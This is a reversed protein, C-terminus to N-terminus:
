KKRLIELVADLEANLRIIEDRNVNEGSDELAEIQALLRQIYDNTVNDFSNSDKPLVPTDDKSDSSNNVNSGSTKDQHKSNKGSSPKPAPKKVVIEEDEEFSDDGAIYQGNLHNDGTAFSLYFVEEFSEDTSLKHKPWQAEVASNNYSLVTDFSRLVTLDPEWRSTDLTSYNAVAVLVPKTAESGCFIFQMSVNDNKSVFWSDSTFQRIAVENKVPVKSSTYFHHRDTEGLVTDFVAKLEFDNKKNSTNIVSASIKISDIDSNELASFCTFKVFVVALNDANYALEVGDSTKRAATKVTPDENLKIIRKGAKLYFSTTIYENSASLVPISKNDENVALINFTGKKPRAKIRILGFTVDINKTSQEEWGTFNKKEEVPKETQKEKGSKKEAAPKEKESKNKLSKNSKEKAAKEKKELKELAAKEKEAKKRAEEEIKAKKKEEKTMKANYVHIEGSSSLTSVSDLASSNANFVFSLFILTFVLIFRSKKM